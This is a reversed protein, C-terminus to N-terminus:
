AVRAADVSGYMRELLASQQKQLQMEMGRYAIARASGQGPAKGAAGPPSRIVSPVSVPTSRALGNTARGWEAASSRFLRGTVGSSSLFSTGFTIREGQPAGWDTDGAAIIAGDQPACMPRFVPRSESLLAAKQVAKGADYSTAEQLTVLQLTRRTGIWGDRLQLCHPRSALDSM